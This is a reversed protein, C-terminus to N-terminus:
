AASVEEAFAPLLHKQYIAATSALMESIFEDDRRISIYEIDDPPIFLVFFATELNTVLLQMQVQFYYPHKPNLFPKGDAAINVYFSKEKMKFRLKQKRIFPNYPCKIEVPFLQGDVKVLRDLSAGCFPFNPHVLLGVASSGEIATEESSNFKEMFVLFAAAENNLGHRVSKSSFMKRKGIFRKVADTRANKNIIFYVISATVRYARSKHWWASQSQFRTKKEIEQSHDWSVEVIEYFSQELQNAPNIAALHTSIHMKGYLEDIMIAELKNNLSQHKLIRPQYDNMEINELAPCDLGAIRLGSVLKVVNGPTVTARTAPLLKHRQIEAGLGPRFYGAKAEKHKV